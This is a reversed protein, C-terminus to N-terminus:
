SNGTKARILIPPIIKGEALIRITDFSFGEKETEIEYVGNKIPTVTLFHGVKNTKLARVPRKEADRIELIAGEIIGGDKTLVQGVVTNPVAPPNPPAAEPAFVAQETRTSAEAQRFVPSVGQQVFAPKVVPIPQVPPSPPIKIPEAPPVGMEATPTTPVPTQQVMTAMDPQSPISVTQFIASVKQFFSKEAQEFTSLVQNEPIKALDEEPRVGAAKPMTPPGVGASEKSFVEEAGGQAWVYQTPSYITKFFATIWTSLPREEFPLFALAAGFLSFFAVLPWKIIGPLGSAYFILAVVAGGALQFFQKLTMDGVLRFEYSSINQPVPHQNM